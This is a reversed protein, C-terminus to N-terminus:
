QVEITGEMGPHYHCLYPYSGATTFKVSCLGTARSGCWTQLGPNSLVDHTANGGWLFLVSDGVSVTQTAPSFYNDGVTVSKTTNTSTSTNDCAISAAVM